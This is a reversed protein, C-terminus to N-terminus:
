FTLMCIFGVINWTLPDSISGGGKDDYLSGSIHDIITNQAFVYMCIRSWCRMFPSAPLRSKYPAKKGRLGSPFKKKLYFGFLVCTGMLSGLIKKKEGREGRM